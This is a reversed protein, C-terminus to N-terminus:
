DVFVEYSVRRKKEKGECYIKDYLKALDKKEQESWFESDSYIDEGCSTKFVMPAACLAGATLAVIGLIGIVRKM